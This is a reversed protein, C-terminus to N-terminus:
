KTWRLVKYLILGFSILVVAHATWTVWHPVLFRPGEMYLSSVWGLFLLAYITFLTKSRKSKKKTRYIIFVSTIILLAQIFSVLWPLRFFFSIVALVAALLHIGPVCHRIMIKKWVLSLILYFIAVTSFYATLLLPLPMFHHGCNCLEFLRGMFMILGMLIKSLFALGFFLFTNRFFRIGKHDALKQMRATKFYILGCLVVVLLTLVIEIPFWAPNHIGPPPM